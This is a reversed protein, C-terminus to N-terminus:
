VKGIRYTDSYVVTVINYQANLTGNLAVAHVHLMFTFIIYIVCVTNIKVEKNWLLRYFAHNKLDVKKTQM